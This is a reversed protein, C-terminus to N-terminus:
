TALEGHELRRADPIELPTIEMLAKPFHVHVKTGFDSQRSLIIRNDDEGAVIGKTRATGLHEPGIEVQRGLLPGNQMSEAVAQPPSDTACALAQEVNIPEYSGHGLAVMRQYWAKLRSRRRFTARGDKDARFWIGHVASFDAIGPSSRAFLFDSSRLLEDLVDLHAQWARTAQERCPVPQRTVSGLYKKDRLYKPWASVPVRKLLTQFTGFVPLSIVCNLFIENEWQRLAHAVEDPQDFPSLEPRGTAQAIQHSIVRTDCFVDSGIQAVPIHRYGNVLPDISPRPPQWNAYLSRWRLGAYGLMLRIKESFPSVTKHHLIM